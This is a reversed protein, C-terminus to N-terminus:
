WNIDEDKLVVDAAIDKIVMKGLLEDMRAPSIGTGPGKTTLM